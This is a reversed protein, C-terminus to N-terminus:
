TYLIWVLTAAMHAAMSPISPRTNVPPAPSADVRSRASVHAPRENRPTLSRAVVLSPQVPSPTTDGESAEGATITTSAPLIDLDDTVNPFQEGLV